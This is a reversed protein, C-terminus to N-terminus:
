GDIRIPKIDFDNDVEYFMLLHLDYALQIEIKSSASGEGGSLIYIGDCRTLMRVREKMDLTWERSTLLVPNCVSYGKKNLAQAVQNFHTKTAERDTYDPGSLYIKHM